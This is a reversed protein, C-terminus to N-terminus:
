FIQYLQNFFNLLNQAYSLLKYDNKYSKKIVIRKYIKIM